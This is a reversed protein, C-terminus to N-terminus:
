RDEEREKEEERGGLRVGFFVVAAFEILLYLHCCM